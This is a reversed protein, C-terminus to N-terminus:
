IWAPTVTKEDRVNGTNVTTKPELLMLEVEDEAVPKHEIGRPIIVMEGENLSIEQDRLKIILTGKLVLFLEDEEDHHHWVFEGKVKM